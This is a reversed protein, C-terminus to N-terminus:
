YACPTKPWACVGTQRRGPQQNQRSEHRGQGHWFVLYLTREKEMITKMQRRISLDHCAMCLNNAVCLYSAWFKTRGGGGVEYFPRTRDVIIIVLCTEAWLNRDRGGICTQANPCTKMILWFLPELLFYPRTTTRKDWVLFNINKGHWQNM